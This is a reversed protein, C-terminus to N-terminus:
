DEADVTEGDKVLQEDVLKKVNKPPIRKIEETKYIGRKGNSWHVSWIKDKMHALVGGYESHKWVVVGENCTSDVSHCVRTGISFADKNKLM